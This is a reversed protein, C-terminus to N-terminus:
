LLNVQIGLVNQQHYTEFYYWSKYVELNVERGYTKKYKAQVERVSMTFKFESPLFRIALRGKLIYKALSNRESWSDKAFDTHDYLSKMQADFLSSSVIAIDLDSQRNYDFNLFPYFGPNERNPKMSFGLKGSGVIVIDRIHVKLLKAIDRKFEYEKGEVIEKFFYSPQEILYRDVVEDPKLNICSQKFDEKFEELNM